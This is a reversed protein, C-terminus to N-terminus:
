LNNYAIEAQEQTHVERGILKLPQSSFYYNSTSNFLKQSNKVRQNLIEGAIKKGKRKQPPSPYTLLWMSFRGKKRSDSDIKNIREQFPFLRQEQSDLQM